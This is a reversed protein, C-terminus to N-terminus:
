DPRAWFWDPPYYPYPMEAIRWRGDQRVLSATGPVGVDSSFPAGSVYLVRVQVLARDDFLQAKGIEIAAQDVNLQGSVFSHRFADLDPRKESEALYGYARDFDHRHLALVYNHVVAEPTDDPLYSQSEQRVFFLAVSAVVLVGIGILIGILFRDQKM